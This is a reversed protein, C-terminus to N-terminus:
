KTCSPPNPNNQFVAFDRKNKAEGDRERTIILNISIETVVNCHDHFYYQFM